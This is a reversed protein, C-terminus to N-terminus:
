FNNLGLLEMAQDMRQEWDKRSEIDTEVWEIIKNSLETRDRMSLDFMINGAHEDSDDQSMRNMGPNLDVTASNGRRTVHADGVQGSFGEDPMEPMEPSRGLEEMDENRRAM